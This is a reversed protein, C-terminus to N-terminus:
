RAAKTGAVYKQLVRPERSFSCPELHFPVNLFDTDLHYAVADNCKTIWKAKRENERSRHGSITNSVFTIM